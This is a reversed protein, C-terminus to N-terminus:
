KKVELEYTLNYITAMKNRKKMNDIMNKTGSSFNDWFAVLAEGYEAMEANRLHGAKKGQKNWDPIFPVIPINRHAAWLEGVRDVGLATGSIVETIPFIKHYDDLTDMIWCIETYYLPRLEQGPAGVQRVGAIVTKM